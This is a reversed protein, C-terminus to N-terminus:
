FRWAGPLSSAGGMPDSGGHDKKGMPIPSCGHRHNVQSRAIEDGEVTKGEQPYRPPSAAVGPSKTERWLREKRHTDPLRRRWEQRDRRGGCDKRGTPIPSAVGNSRAIEDGEV